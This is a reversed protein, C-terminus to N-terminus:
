AHEPDQQFELVNGAPDRAFLIKGMPNAMDDLKEVAMGQQELYTEAAHIDDVYFAIHPGMPNMAEDASPVKGMSANAIVHVQGNSFQMWFGPVLAAFEEPIDRRVTAVNLHQTYFDKMADANSATNIATHNIRTINIM